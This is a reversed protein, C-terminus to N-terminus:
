IPLVLQKCLYTQPTRLHVMCVLLHVLTSREGLRKWDIREMRKRFAFGFSNVSELGSGPYGYGVPYGNAVNFTGMGVPYSNYALYGGGTALQSSMTDACFCLCIRKSLETM